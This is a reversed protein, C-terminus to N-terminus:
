ASWDMVAFAGPRRIALAQFSYVAVDTTLADPYTLAVQAPTQPDEYFLADRFSGWIVVDAPVNDDLVVPVSRITGAVSAANGIGAPNSPAETSVLPRGDTDVLDLFQGWTAGAMVSAIPSRKSGTYVASWAAGVNALATTADTAGPIATAGANLIGTMGTGSVPTDTAPDGNITYFDVREALAALHDRVVEDLYSPQSWRIAQITVGQGGAITSKPYDNLVWNQVQNAISTGEGDQYDVQNGQVVSPLQVVNGEAPLDRQGFLDVTPRGERILTLLDPVYVNNPTSSGVSNGVGAFARADLNIASGDPEVIGADILAELRTSADASRKRTWLIVDSVVHGLSRYDHPRATAQIPPVDQAVQARYDDLARTVAADVTATVDVAPTPDADAGVPNQDDMTTGEQRVDSRTVAVVNARRYAPTGTLTVERLDGSRVTTTGDDNRDRLLPIFGASGGLAGDAALTLADDGAQTASVRFTGVLGADTDDWDVARGIVPGAHGPGLELKLAVQAPTGFVGPAYREGGGVPATDDYPAVLVRITRADRDTARVEVPLDWSLEDTM